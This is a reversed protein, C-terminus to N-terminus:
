GREIRFLSANSGDGLAYLYGDPGQRVDRIRTGMNLREQRVVRGQEDLDIRRIDQGALGGSFLDGQWGPMKDGTYFALGSPAPCPTWVVMPDVMGAMSTNDSIKPGWYEVSFTAKPWGYNKGKEIMNVEDGGRAGHENAFIRGSQPDRAMGQINRHGLSWVEPADGQGRFPNDAPARGEGDLRLVKGIHSSTKQSLHRTLEGNIASPPNGGDGISLLFTKDPLFLIRSGFHQGGQKDQSVTFITKFNTLRNGDLVGYGANTRNAGDNGTSYSLYVRRNSAFDPHLVVDMLGGQGGSFVQPGGSVPTKNGQADALVLGGGKLTFLKRGDPLFAVGWPRDLGEVVATKTWGSAAPPPGQPQLNASASSQAANEASSEPRADAVNVCAALALLGFAPVPALSLALRNM